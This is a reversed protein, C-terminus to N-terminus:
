GEGGGAWRRAEGRRAEGHQLTVSGQGLMNATMVM